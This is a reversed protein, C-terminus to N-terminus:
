LSESNSAVPRQLSASLGLCVSMDEVRIRIDSEPPDRLPSDAEVIGPGFFSTEVAKRAVVRCSASSADDRRNEVKPAVIPCPM